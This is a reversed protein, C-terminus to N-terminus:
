TLLGVATIKGKEGHKFYLEGHMHVVQYNWTPVHKHHQSKTPYWNPSVYSDEANFVFVAKCGNQLTKHM